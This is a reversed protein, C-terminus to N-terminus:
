LGFIVLGALISYLVIFLRVRGGLVWLSHAFRYKQVAQRGNAAPNKDPAAILPVLTM